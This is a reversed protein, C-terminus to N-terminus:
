TNSSSAVFRGIVYGNASDWMFIGATSDFSAVTTGAILNFFSVGTVYNYPNTPGTDRFSAICDNQNVSNGCFTWDGNAVPNSISAFRVHVEMFPSIIGYAVAPKGNPLITASVSNVVANADSDVLEFPSNWTSGGTFHYSFYM